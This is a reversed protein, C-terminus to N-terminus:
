KVLKSLPSKFLLVIINKPQILCPYHTLVIWLISCRKSFSLRWSNYIAPNIFYNIVRRVTHRYEKGNKRGYKDLEGAVKLYSDINKDSFPKTMISNDRIRRKFFARDIKGVRSAEMYMLATCLEDEHLIGPYFSLSANRYFSSKIFNLWASARYKKISILYELLQRGNYAKEEMYGARHYDMRFDTCVNNDMFSEADFLVFDLNDAVCKNYCLELTDEDLLDDSDMFYLYDGCSQEAGANRAASLGQNSQSILKIRSDTDAIQQVIDPGNDTSGDNVVIIEIEHLTQHTISLLTQEIYDETNYLSIVVSTKISNIM